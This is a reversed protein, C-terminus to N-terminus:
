QSNELYTLNGLTVTEEEVTIPRVYVRPPTSSFDIGCAVVSLFHNAPDLSYTDFYVFLNGYEISSIAEGAVQRVSVSIPENNAAKGRIAEFDGEALTGTCAPVKLDANLEIVADMKVGGNIHEGLLRIAGEITKAAEQDSGALADNLADIAGIITGSDDATGGAAVALDNFAGHISM